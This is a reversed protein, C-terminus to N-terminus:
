KAGDAKREETDPHLSRTALIRGRPTVAARSGRDAKAKNDHCDIAPPIRIGEPSYALL